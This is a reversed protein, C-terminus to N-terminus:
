GERGLIKYIVIVGFISAIMSYVPVPMWGFISPLNSILTGLLEAIYLIDQIWDIVFEVVSGVMDFFGEIMDLLDEM